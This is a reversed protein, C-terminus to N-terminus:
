VVPIFYFTFYIYRIIIFLYSNKENGAGHEEYTSSELQKNSISQSSSLAMVSRNTAKSKFRPLNLINCLNSTKAIIIEKKLTEMWKM